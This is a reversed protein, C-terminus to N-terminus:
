PNVATVLWADIVRQTEDEVFSNRPGRVQELEWRISGDPRRKPALCITAREPRRMRYFYASGTAVRHIYSAACNCMEAAERRLDSPSLIPEIPPVPMVPPPPFDSHRPRPPPPLPPPPLPRVVRMPSALLLSATALPDAERPHLLLIEFLARFYQRTLNRFPIRGILRVTSERGPLGFASLIDRRRCMLLEVLMEPSRYLSAPHLLSQRVAVMYALQPHSALMQLFFTGAHAASMLLPWHDAPFPRVADRLDLPWQSVLFRCARTHGPAQQPLLGGAIMEMETLDIAPTFDKWGEAHTHRRASADVGWPRIVETFAPGRRYVRNLEVSWAVTAGSQRLPARLLASLASSM